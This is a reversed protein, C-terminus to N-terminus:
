IGGVFVGPNCTGFPDFRAKVRRMLELERAGVEGWPDLATRVPEPADLIM